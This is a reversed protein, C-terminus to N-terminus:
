ENNELEQELEQIRSELEDIRSQYEDLKETVEDDIESHFEVLEKHLNQAIESHSDDLFNEFSKIAKIDSNTGQAHDYNVIPM